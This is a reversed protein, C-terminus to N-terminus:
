GPASAAKEAALQAEYRSIATRDAESTCCVDCGARLMLLESAKNTVDFANVFTPGFNFALLENVMSLVLDGVESLGEESRLRFYAKGTAAGLDAHVQVLEAAPWEEDLWCRIM